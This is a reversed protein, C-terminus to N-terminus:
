GQSVARHARDLQAKAAIFQKEAKGIYTLAEEAYGDASASWVRNLYREGAAFHSMIDAFAQLGYIHALSERADAFNILDDRFKKDIEFRLDYPPIRSKKKQLDELNTVINSLSRDLNDRNAKLVHEDRALRRQATRILIVGAFGAALIPLYWVWRVATPNLSSVFAAALFGAVLLIYGLVKM